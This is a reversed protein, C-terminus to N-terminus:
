IWNSPGWLLLLYVSWDIMGPHLTTYIAHLVRARVRTNTYRLVCQMQQWKLCSYLIHVTEEALM